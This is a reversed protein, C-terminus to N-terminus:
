LKNELEALCQIYERRNATGHVIILMSKIILFICKKRLNWWVAPKGRHCGKRVQRTLYNMAVLGALFRNIEGSVIYHLFVHKSVNVAEQKRADTNAVAQEREQLLSRPLTLNYM